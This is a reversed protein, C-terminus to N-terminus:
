TYVYAHVSPDVLTSCLRAFCLMLDNSLSYARTRGNPANALRLGARVLVILFLIANAQNVNNKTPSWQQQQSQRLRQQRWWNNRSAAAATTYGSDGVSLLVIFVYSVCVFAFSLLALDKTQINGNHWGALWGAPM